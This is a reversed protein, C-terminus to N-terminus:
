IFKSRDLDEYSSFKPPLKLLEKEQDTLDVGYSQSVVDSPNPQRWSDNKNNYSGVEPLHNFYGRTSINNNYYRM